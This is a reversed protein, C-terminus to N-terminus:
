YISFTTHGTWLYIRTVRATVGTHTQKVNDANLIEDSNLRNAVINNEMQPFSYM